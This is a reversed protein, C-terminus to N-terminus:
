QTGAETLSQFPFFGSHDASAHGKRHRRRRQLPLLDGEALSPTIVCVPVSCSGASSAFLGEEASIDATMCPPRRLIIRETLGETGRATNLDTQQSYVRLFNSREDPSGARRASINGNLFANGYLVEVCERGHSLFISPVMSVEPFKSGILRRHGGGRSGMEWIEARYSADRRSISVLSM